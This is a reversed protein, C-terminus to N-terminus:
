KRRKMKKDSEVKGDRVTIIRSAYNAVEPDHTIVIITNGKKNLSQFIKMIERSTKTDVNGTPEDAFIVSPNNILARAIAVRQQEGGSLQGPTSNVRQSLGLSSLLKLAKKHREEKDVGAYLLPLEANKAASTRPLLNFFQFVFGIQKNRIEALSNDSLKSVERGRFFYEGETPKDLCGMIHMLTSKGSGSPGIIATFEGNKIEVSVNELAITENPAEGYKKTLNKASILVNM